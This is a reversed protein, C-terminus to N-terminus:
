KQHGCAKHYDIVAQRATRLDQAAQPNAARWTKWEAKRQDKPLTKVKAIEAAVDPHGALYAAVKPTADARAQAAAAPGCTPTDASATGPVALGIVAFAAAGTLTAAITRKM